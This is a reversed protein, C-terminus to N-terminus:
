KGKQNQDICERCTCEKFSPVPEKDLGGTWGDSLAVKPIEMSVIHGSLFHVRWNEEWASASVLVNAGHLRHFAQLRSPQNIWMRQM